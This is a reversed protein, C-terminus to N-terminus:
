AGYAVFNSTRIIQGTKPHLDVPQGIALNKMGDETPRDLEFLQGATNVVVGGHYAPASLKVLVDAQEEIKLRARNLLAEEQPTMLDNEANEVFFELRNSSDNPMLSSGSSNPKTLKLKKAM